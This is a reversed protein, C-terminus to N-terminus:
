GKVIESYDKGETIIGKDTGWANVLNWDEETPTILTSYQVGSTVQDYYGEDILDYKLVMDKYESPDMNDVKDVAENSVKIFTKVADTQGNYFEGQWTLASLKPAKADISGWILKAGDAVAMSPFPDPLIALDLDGSQLAAFRDPIAPIPNKEFKIGYESAVYDIYYETVTNESFGVKAGDLSAIDGDYNKSLEPSAVLKFNSGVSGTVTIDQGQSAMMASDALDATEVNYAGTDWGASRDKASNFFTLNVDLGAEEYMGTEVAYIYPIHAIDKMLGMEISTAETAQKNSGCGSLILVMMMTLSLIKKM